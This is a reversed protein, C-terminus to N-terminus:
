LYPLVDTVDGADEAPEDMGARHDMSQLKLDHDWMRFSRLLEQYRNRQAESMRFSLDDAGVDTGSSILQAAHWAVLERLEAPWTLTETAADITASTIDDTKILYVQRITQGAGTGCIAYQKNKHDEYYRRAANRYTVRNKFPVPSYPIVGVYLELTQRWNDPQAHMTTYTDGSANTQTTAEDQLIEPKENREVENKASSLLRAATDQDITEDLIGNCLFDYLDADTALVNVPATM